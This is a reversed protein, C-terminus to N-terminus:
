RLLVFVYDFVVTFVVGQMRLIPGHRALSCNFHRVVAILDLVSWSTTRELIWIPATSAYVLREEVKVEETKEAEVPAIAMWNAM